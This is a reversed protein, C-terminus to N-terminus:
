VARGNQTGVHPRRHPIDCNELSEYAGDAASREWAFREVVSGRLENVAITGDNMTGLSLTSFWVIQRLWTVALTVKFVCM